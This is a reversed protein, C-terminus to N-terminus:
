RRPRPAYPNLGDDAIEGFQGRQGTVRAMEFLFNVTVTFGGITVWEEGKALSLAILRGLKTPGVQCGGFNFVGARGDWWIADDGYRPNACRVRPLTVTHALPGGNASDALMRGAAVRIQHASYDLADCVRKSGLESHIIGNVAGSDRLTDAQEELKAAEERLARAEDLEWAFPTYDGDLNWSLRGTRGVHRLVDLALEPTTGFETYYRRRLLSTVIDKGLASWSMGDGGCHSFQGREFTIWNASM